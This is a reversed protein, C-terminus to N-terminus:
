GISGLVESSIISLIPALFCYHNPSEYFPQTPELPRQFIRLVISGTGEEKALENIRTSEDSDSNRYNIM